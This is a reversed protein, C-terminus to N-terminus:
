VKQFFFRDILSFLLDLLTIEKINLRKIGGIKTAGGTINLKFYFTKRLPDESYALVNLYGFSSLPKILVKIKIEENKKLEKIVIKNESIKFYKESPYIFLVITEPHDFILYLNKIDVDGTNKVTIDVEKIENVKLQVNPFIVNVDKKLKCVSACNASKTKVESFYKITNTVNSCILTVKGQAVTLTNINSCVLTINSFWVILNNANIKELTGNSCFIQVNQFNQNFLYLTDNYNILFLSNYNLISPNYTQVFNCLM